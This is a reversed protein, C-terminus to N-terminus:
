AEVDEVAIFVVLVQNVAELPDEFLRFRHPELICGLSNGRLRKVLSILAAELSFVDPLWPLAPKGM